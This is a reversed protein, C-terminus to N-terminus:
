NTKLYIKQADEELKQKLKQNHFKNNYWLKKEHKEEILKFKNYQKQDEKNIQFENNL